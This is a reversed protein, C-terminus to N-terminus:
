ISIPVYFKDSAYFLRDRLFSTTGHAVMADREMESIGSEMPCKRGIDNGEFIRLLLSLTYTLQSEM